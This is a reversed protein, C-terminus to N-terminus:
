IKNLIMFILSPEIIFRYGVRVSKVMEVERGNGFDMNQLFFTEFVFELTLQINHIREALRGYVIM